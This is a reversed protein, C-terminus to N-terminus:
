HRLSLEAFLRQTVGHAPEPLPHEQQLLVVQAQFESVLAPNSQKFNRLTQALLLRVTVNAPENVCLGILHQVVDRESTIRWGRAVPLASVAVALAQELGQLYAPYGAGVPVSYFRPAPQIACVEHQVLADILAALAPELTAEPAQPDLALKLEALCQQDLARVLRASLTWLSRTPDLHATFVHTCAPHKSQAHAVADADSWPETLLVFSGEASPIWPQMFCGTAPTRLHIQEALYLPLIRSVRGALDAPRPSRDEAQVSRQLTAAFTCVVPSDAAKGPFLEAAPSSERLWVPGALSLLALPPLEDLKPAVALEGKAVETEWAVLAAGWDPRKQTYLLDILRRAAHHQGLDVQAKILNGGVALGHAAVDFRPLTLQLLEPLHGHRGLAGSLQQLLDAPVPRPAHALAERYCALATDVDRRLLAAGALFLQPRWSGPLAALRQLAAGEAEPGAIERERALFWALGNEQNPDLLLGRWLTEGVLTGPRQQATYVKALNTLVAGTEQHEAIFRTLTQEAEATRELKLQIVALLCAAREPNPDVRQLHQAPALMELFFEDQMSQLVFAALAEPDHWVQKLHSPLISKRWDDRSIQLSRGYADYVQIPAIATV